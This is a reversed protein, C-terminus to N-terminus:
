VNYFYKIKLRQVVINELNKPINEYIILYKKMSSIKQVFVQLKLYTEANKLVNECIEKSF